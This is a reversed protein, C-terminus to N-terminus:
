YTIMMTPVTLLLIDYIQWCLSFRFIYCLGVDSSHMMDICRELRGCKSHATKPSGVRQESGGITNQAGFNSVGTSTHRIRSVFIHLVNINNRHCFLYRDEINNPTHQELPSWVSTMEMSKSGVFTVKACSKFSNQFLWSYPRVLRMLVWTLLLVLFNQVSKKKDIIKKVNNYYMDRIRVWEFSCRTKLSILRDSSCDCRKGSTMM